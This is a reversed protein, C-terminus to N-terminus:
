PRFPKWWAQLCFVLWQTLSLRLNEKVSLDGKLGLKQGFYAVESLNLYAPFLPCWLKM